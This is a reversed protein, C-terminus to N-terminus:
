NLLSALKEVYEENTWDDLADGVQIEFRSTDRETKYIRDFLWIKDKEAIKLAKEELEKPSIPLEVLFGNNQIPNPIAKEGIKEKIITSLTQARENFEFIRPLYHEIGWLSTLVYPFATFLDGALRSRWPKLQEIVENNGAIVGGAAAGLTKYLSVYTTDALASVEKYTKGWYDASELLRAGDFHLPIGNAKSVAKVALLTEWEPLLFGARRTPLEVCIVCLDKPLQNVDEVTIAHNPEGFMHAELGLLKEYALSEDVQMHSQPHIAIKKNGTIESWHMLASYQGVSGKHVFLAKEQGLVAAMKQELIEIAPGSSYLDIGLETEPMHAMRQLWQKQTLPKHRTVFRTCQYMLPHGLLVGQYM